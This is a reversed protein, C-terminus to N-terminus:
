WFQHSFSRWQDSPSSAASSRPVPKVRSVGSPRASHQFCPEGGRCGASSAMHSSGLRRLCSAPGSSAARRWAAAQIQWRKSCSFRWRASIPKSSM